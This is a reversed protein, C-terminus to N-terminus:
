CVEKSLRKKYETYARMKQGQLREVLFEDM